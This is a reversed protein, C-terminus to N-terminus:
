FVKGITFYLDRGRASGMTFGALNSSGCRFLWTGAPMWQMEAGIGFRGFGGFSIRESFVFHEGVFHSLGAYVLPLAARSPWISLGAEYFNMKNIFRMMRVHISAPLAAVFNGKESTYYISDSLGPFEVSDTAFSFVDDLTLGNWITTSDFRMRETQSNWVVFGIDRLSISIVGRHDTLPINYDFDIAVGTGSGNAWGKRLTDSRMYEGNYTLSLTDGSSSTYLDAGTFIMSHYAQGEVLSLTIGSMTKKNFIGLGLKQWAQFQLAMPGLSVTDGAYQRNGRFVTNFFNKSFSLGSHYNTNFSATLGWDSRGLLTDRFNYLELAAHGYFGARNQDQMRGHINDIHHSEIHGGFVMKRSFLNDLTNSGVSGGADFMILADKQRISTDATTLLISPLQAGAELSISFLCVVVPLAWSLRNLIRVLLCRKNM